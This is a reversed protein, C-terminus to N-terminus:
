STTMPARTLTLLELRCGSRELEARTAEVAQDLVDRLSVRDHPRAAKGKGSSSLVLVQEIMQTLQEAHQVILQAYQTIRAPDRVFGKLLNHGAGRIVTLPTRLEHSVTAVFHMQMEATQRSCRTQWLLM